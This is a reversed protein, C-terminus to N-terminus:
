RMYYKAVKVVARAIDLAEEDTLSPMTTLTFVRESVWEANPCLGRKYEINRGYFPCSWPCGRGHGIKERFLPELYLVTPYAVSIPVNERRVAEVFKDRSVRVKDLDLLVNYIHWAHRVHDPEHPLILCDVKSLEEHYIKAIERRRENLKDVKRLQALGFAAQMETMRYNYGLLIYHYWRPEGHHRILRAKEALDDDNTTIAGGEGGTTINKSQYFSFAGADGIAGVKVGRYEAGIAQAADELVKLGHAKAIKMIEDMEAPLGCLHVPIIVKTRETVREEVSAPDINLTERDIDAFVPVANSHLVATATAVFTFPPVIVEDGPGVGMAKLAVHLAATGSSVAIVHKVGIFRAFEEEFMKVRSGRLMSLAGDRIVSLVEIVEDLDVPPKVTIPKERIPKGGEIAPVEAM